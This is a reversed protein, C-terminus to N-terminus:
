TATMPVPVSGSVALRTSSRPAPVVLYSRRRRVPAEFVGIPPLGWGAQRGRVWWGCTFRGAGVLPPTAM